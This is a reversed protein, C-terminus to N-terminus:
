YPGLVKHSSTLHISFEKTKNINIPANINNILLEIERTEQPTLSLIVPINLHTKLDEKEGTLYITSKIVDELEGQDITKSLISTELDDIEGLKSKDILLKTSIHKVTAYSFYRSTNTVVLNFPIKNTQIKRPTM